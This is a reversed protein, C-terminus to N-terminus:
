GPRCRSYCRTRLPPTASCSELSGLTGQSMGRFIEDHIELSIAIARELGARAEEVHGRYLDVLGAAYFAAGGQFREGRQEQRLM